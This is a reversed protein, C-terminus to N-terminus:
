CDFRLHLCAYSGNFFNVIIEKEHRKEGKLLINILFGGKVKIQFHLPVKLSLNFYYIYTYNYM